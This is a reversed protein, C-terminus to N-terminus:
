KEQLKQEFSLIQEITAMYGRESEDISIHFEYVTNNSTDTYSLMFNYPATETQEPIFYYYHRGNEMPLGAIEGLHESFKNEPIITIASPHWSENIVCSFVFGKLGSKSEFLSVPASEGESITSTSVENDSELAYATLVFPSAGPQNNFLPFMGVLILCVCAAAAIWKNWSHKKRKRQYIIAETVYKEGVEGIANSFDKANM